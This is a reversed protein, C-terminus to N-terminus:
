YWALSHMQGPKRNQPSRPLVDRLCVEEAAAAEAIRKLRLEEEHAQRQKQLREQIIKEKEAKRQAVEARQKQERKLNDARRFFEGGLM